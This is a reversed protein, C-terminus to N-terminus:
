LIRLPLILHLHLSMECGFSLNDVDIENAHQTIYDIGKLITSISGSGTRDLVKIAWLRAGPAIGVSGIGNDKAATIGAVHTGHGNDDNASSTGSIFTQQRFVNLDPHTLDVGTDLIGIDANM